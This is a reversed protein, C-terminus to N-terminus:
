TPLYTNYTSSVSPPLLSPPKRSHYIYMYLLKYLLCHIYTPVQHTGNTYLVCPCLRFTRATRMVFPLPLLIMICYVFAFPLSAFCESYYVFIKTFSIYHGGYKSELARNQILHYHLTPYLDFEVFEDM